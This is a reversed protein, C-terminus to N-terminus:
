ISSQIDETVVRDRERRPAQGLLIELKGEFSQSSRIGLDACESSMGFGYDSLGNCRRQCPRKCFSSALTLFKQSANSRMSKVLIELHGVCDCSSLMRPAQLATM